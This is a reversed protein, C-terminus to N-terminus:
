NLLGMVRIRGSIEADIRDVTDVVVVSREVRGPETCFPFNSLIVIPVSEM